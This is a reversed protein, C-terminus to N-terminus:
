YRNRLLIVAESYSVGAPIFQGSITAGGPPVVRTLPTPIGPGLRLSEKIVATLLPLKELETLDPVIHPDPWVEVLEERLRRSVEKDQAAFVIAYLATDAVSQVGGAIMTQAEGVLDDLSLKEEATHKSPNMLTHLICPDAMDTKQDSHLDMVVDFLKNRFGLLSAMSPWFKSIAKVSFLHLPGYVWPIFKSAQFAPLADELTVLIPHRFGQHGISNISGCFAIKSIVDLSFCRVGYLINSPQGQKDNGELATCFRNVQYPLRM